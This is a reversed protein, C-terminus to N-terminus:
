FDIYFTLTPNIIINNTGLWLNPIKHISKKFNINKGNALM